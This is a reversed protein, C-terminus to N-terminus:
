FWRFTDPQDVYGMATLTRRAAVVCGSVYRDAGSVYRDAGSFASKNLLGACRLLVARREAGKRRHRADQVALKRILARMTCSTGDAVETACWLSELAEDGIEGFERLAKRAASRAANYQKRNM